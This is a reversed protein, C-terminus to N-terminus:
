SRSSKTRLKAWAALHYTLEITLTYSNKSYHAFIFDIFIILFCVFHPNYANQEGTRTPPHINDPQFITESDSNIPANTQLKGDGIVNYNKLKWMAIADIELHGSDINFRRRYKLKKVIVEASSYCGNSDCAEAPFVVQREGCEM